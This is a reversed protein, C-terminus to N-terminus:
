APRPRHQGHDAALLEEAPSRLRRAAGDGPCGSSLGVFSRTRRGRALGFARQSAMAAEKLGANLNFSSLQVAPFLGFVIVSAFSALITFGFVWGDVSAEELRPIKQWGGPAIAKLASLAVLGVALGGVGGIAAVLASETLLQRVVRWRGAGLAQRLAIERTRGAGRALVLNAVNLCAILLVFGVAGLLMWLLLRVRGTVVEQLSAVRLGWNRDEPFSAALGKSITDLETQAQRVTAGDRLRAIDWSSHVNHSELEKTRVDLPVWAQAREPFAFGPPMVGVVVYPKGNLTIAQGLVTPNSGFRRQWLTHGLIVVRNKGPQGEESVFWRGLAPPVNLVPFFDPSVQITSLQEPEGQGTLNASSFNFLAMQAFSRAQGQIAPFDAASVAIQTAHWLQNTSFIQVLRSPRSYPIPRLLVGNVVSFIATNAGIGLALTIVAVATFGPNRRLQRLGYRVDQFLTEIMPLGRQERYTEKVQEVGGFSRLAAYRAEESSMGKRLNEEVLMELHSRVEEDLEEELRQKRFLAVLRSILIRLNLM